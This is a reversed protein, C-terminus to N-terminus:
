FSAAPCKHKTHAIKPACGSKNLCTHKSRSTNVKYSKKPGDFLGGSAKATSGSFIIGSFFVITLIITKM